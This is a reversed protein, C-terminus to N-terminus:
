TYIIIPEHKDIHSKRDKYIYLFTIRQDGPLLEEAVYVEARYFCCM